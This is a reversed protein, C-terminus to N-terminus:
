QNISPSIEDILYERLIVPIDKDLRAILEILQEDRGTMTRIFRKCYEQYNKPDSVLYVKLRYYHPQKQLDNVIQTCYELYRQEEYFSM